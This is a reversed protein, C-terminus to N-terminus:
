PARGPVKARPKAEALTFAAICKRETVAFMKIHSWCAACGSWAAAAGAVECKPSLAIISISRLLPGTAIITSPRNSIM